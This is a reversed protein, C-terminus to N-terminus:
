AQCPVIWFLMPHQGHAFWAGRPAQADGDWTPM